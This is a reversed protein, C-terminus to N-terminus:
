AKSTIDLKEGVGAPKVAQEALYTMYEEPTKGLKKEEVVMKAEVQKLAEAAEKAQEPNECPIKMAQGGHNLEVYTQPGQGGITVSM